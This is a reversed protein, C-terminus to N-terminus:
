GGKMIRQMRQWNSARKSEDLVTPASDGTQTIGTSMSQPKSMNDQMRAMDKKNDYNPVHKKIAQYILARKEFGDPMHAYPASIEPHHFDLYDCNEQTVVRNFDQYTTQMRQPLSKLEEQAQEQRRKTEIENIQAAVAKKIRDDETPEGQNPEPKALIAEMAKAMADAKAQAELKERQALEKEKRDRERDERFKRWNIQEQTEQTAPPIATNDQVPIVPTQEPQVVPTEDAM